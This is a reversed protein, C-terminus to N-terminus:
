YQVMLYIDLSVFSVTSHETNEAIMSLHKNMGTTAAQQIKQGLSEMSACTLVSEAFSFNFASYVKVVSACGICSYLSVHLM